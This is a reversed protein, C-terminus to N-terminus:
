FRSYTHPKDLILCRLGLNDTQIITLKTLLPTIPYTASCPGPSNRNSFASRTETTSRSFLNGPHGSMVIRLNISAGSPHPSLCRCQEQPQSAVVAEFNQHGYTPVALHWHLGQDGAFCVAASCFSASSRQHYAENRETSYLNLMSSGRRFVNREWSKEHLSARPPETLHTTSVTGHYGGLQM